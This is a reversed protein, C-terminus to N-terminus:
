QYILLYKIKKLCDFRREFIGLQRLHFKQLHQTLNYRRFDTCMYIVQVELTDIKLTFCTADSDPRVLRSSTSQHHKFM